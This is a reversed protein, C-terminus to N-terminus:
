YQWPDYREYLTTCREWIDTVFNSREATDVCAKDWAYCALLIGKCASLVAAATYGLLPQFKVCFQGDIGKVLYGDVASLSAHSAHHSLHRYFGDYAANASGRKALENVKISNTDARQKAFDDLISLFPTVNPYTKSRLLANAHKRREADDHNRLEDPTVSNEAVALMVFVTELLGRSRSLSEITMGTEALIIGAQHHSLCRSFFQSSIIQRESKANPLQAAVRLAFRTCEDSFAFLEENDKRQDSKLKAAGAM